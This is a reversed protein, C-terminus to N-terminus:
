YILNIYQGVRRNSVQWVQDLDDDSDVSVAGILSEVIDSLLKPTRVRGNSHLPYGAIEEAFDDVDRQFSPVEHRLFRHLGHAVAARALKENDVNLSHLRTLSNSKPRRCMLHRRTVVYSIAKDGLLELDKFSFEADLNRPRFSTHTLAEELLTKNKFTYGLVAEVAAVNVADSISLTYVTHIEPADDVAIDDSADNGPCVHNLEMKLLLIARSVYKKIEVLEEESNPLPNTAAQVGEAIPAFTTSM